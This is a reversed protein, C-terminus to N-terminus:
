AIASALFFGHAVAACFIVLNALSSMSHLIGFSAALKRYKESARGNPDYDMHFREFMIRTTAPGLYVINLLTLALASGLVKKVHVVM